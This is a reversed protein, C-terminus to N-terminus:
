CTVWILTNTVRIVVPLMDIVTLGCFLDIFHQLRVAAIDVMIRTQPDHQIVSHQLTKKRHLLFVIKYLLKSKTPACDDQLDM